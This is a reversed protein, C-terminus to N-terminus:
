RGSAIRDPLRTAVQWVESPLVKDSGLARMEKVLREAAQRSRVRPAVLRRRVVKDNIM